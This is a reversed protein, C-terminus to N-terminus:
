EPVAGLPAWNCGGSKAEVGCRVLADLLAKRGDPTNREPSGAFVAKWITEDHHGKVSSVRASGDLFEADARRGAYQSFSAWADKNKLLAEPFYGTIQPVLLGLYDRGGIDHCKGCVTGESNDLLRPKALPKLKEPVVAVGYGPHLETIYGKSPIYNRLFEEAVLTYPAGSLKGERSRLVRTPKPLVLEYIETNDKKAAQKLRSVAPSYVFPKTSHCTTCDISMPEWQSAVQQLRKDDAALLPSIYEGNMRGAAALYTKGTESNQVEVTNSREVFCAKNSERNHGIFAVTDYLRTPGGGKEVTKGELFTNRRRCIFVFDTTATSMRRVRTGPICGGLAEDRVSMIPNDCKIKENSKSKAAAFIKEEFSAGNLTMPVEVAKDCDVDEPLQGLEQFCAVSYERMGWDSSNSTGRSNFNRRNCASSFVLLALVIWASYFLDRRIM